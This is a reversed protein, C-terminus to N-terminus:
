YWSCTPRMWWSKSWRRCVIEAGFHPPTYEGGGGSVPLHEKPKEQVNLAEPYGRSFFLVTVHLGTCCSLFSGFATVAGSSRCPSRGFLLVFGGCPSWFVPGSACRGKHKWKARVREGELECAKLKLRKMEPPDFSQRSCLKSPSSDDELINRPVGLFPM